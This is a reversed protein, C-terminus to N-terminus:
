ARTSSASSRAGAHRAPRRAGRARLVRDAGARDRPRGRGARQGDAARAVAPLRAAHVRLARARRSRTACRAARLGAARPLEVNAGALDPSRRCCRCARRDGDRRLAEEATADGASCTTSARTSTRAAARARRTANAQPDVDVLLTEYGAEAICAAVNVATTTKGVGGKQNAIAYVTGMPADFSAASRDSAATSTRAGFRM